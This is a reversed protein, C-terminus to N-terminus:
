LRLSRSGYISCQFQLKWRDAPAVIDGSNESGQTDGMGALPPPVSHYHAFEEQVQSFGEGQLFFRHSLPNARMPYTLPTEESSHTLLGDIDVGFHSRFFSATYSNLSFMDFLENSHTEVLAGGPVLIRRADAYFQSVMEPSLYALVNAALVCTASEDPVNALSEVGGIMLDVSDLDRLAVRASQVMTEDLDIAWGGIPTGPPRFPEVLCVGDGCGFDVIRLWDHRRMMSAIMALRSQHYPSNLVARYAAGESTWYEPWDAPSEAM